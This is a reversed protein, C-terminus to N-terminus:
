NVIGKNQNTLVTLDALRNIGAEWIHEGHAQKVVYKYQFTSHPTVLDNTVWIHGETWTMPCVFEEWGGLEEINGMVYLAQGLITEYAVKLTM